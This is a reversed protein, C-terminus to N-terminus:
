IPEVVIKISQSHKKNSDFYEKYKHGTYSSSNPDIGWDEAVTIFISYRSDLDLNALRHDKSKQDSTM